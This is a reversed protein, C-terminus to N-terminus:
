AGGICNSSALTCFTIALTCIGIALICSVYAFTSHIWKYLSFLCSSLVPLCSCLDCLCNDFFKVSQVLIMPLHVFSFQEGNEKELFFSKLCNESKENESIGCLMCM